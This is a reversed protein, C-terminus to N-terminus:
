HPTSPSSPRTRPGPATSGQRAGADRSTGLREAVRVLDALSQVKMKAMVRARHVKVTQEVTGLENAIQKNPKGDVVHHFVERERNTLSDMRAQLQDLEALIELTRRNHELGAEIAALLATDTVPKSLFDLAGSKMAQVSTPVDGNGTLFIIPLPCGKRKLAAQLELGNIGPMAYDLVLCGPTRASVQALFDEPSTFTAVNLEASRLLRSVGRLVQPDDDVLYVTSNPAPM